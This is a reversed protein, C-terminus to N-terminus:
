KKKGQLLHDSTCQGRDIFLYINGSYKHQFIVFCLTYFQFDILLTSRDLTFSMKFNNLRHHIIQLYYLNYFLHFYVASLQQLYVIYLFSSYM